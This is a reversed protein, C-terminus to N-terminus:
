KDRFVKIYDYEMAQEYSRCGIKGNSHDPDTALLELVGNVFHKLTDQKVEFRLHLWVDHPVPTSPTKEAVTHWKGGSTKQIKYANSKVEMFYFNKGDKYRAILGADRTGTTLMMKAEVTYDTWESNGNVSRGGKYTSSQIYKGNKVSWSGNTVDWGDDNGDEFDDYFLEQKNDNPNLVYVFVKDTKNKIGDGAAGGCVYIKNNVAVPGIGHVNVPYDTIRQWTGGNKDPTFEHVINTAPTEGGIFYLKGNVVPFNGMYGTRPYEPLPNMVRWAEKGKDMKSLDFELILNDQPQSWKPNQGSINGPRGPSLYVKNGTLGAGIHTRPYPMQNNVLEWTDNRPSYEFVRKTGAKDFRALPNGGFVYIKQNYTIIGPAAAAHPLPAIEDWKNTEPSYVFCRDTVGQNRYSGGTYGSIVYIKGDLACVGPHSVPLPLDALKKWSDSAIDYVDFDAIANCCAISDDMGGAAYIKGDMYAVPFEQRAKLMPKLEEWYGPHAIQSFAPPITSFLLLLYIICKM